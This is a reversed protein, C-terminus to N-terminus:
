CSLWVNVNMHNDGILESISHSVVILYKSTLSIIYTKSNLLQNMFKPFHYKYIASRADFMEHHELLKAVVGEDREYFQRTILEKLFSIYRFGQFRFQVRSYTNIAAM